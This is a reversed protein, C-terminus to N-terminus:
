ALRCVVMHCTSPHRRAVARKVFWRATMRDPRYSFPPLLRSTEVVLGRSEVYAVFEERNWERIHAPNSPRNADPGCLSRRDPTTFVITGSDAVIRKVYEVLPDPDLLHEIVDSSIVLDAGVVDALVESSPHEFDDALFRGPRRLRECAAVAAPQDIGVLEFRDADFCAALKTAVGCGVDVIRRMGREAALEAALEYARRQYRGSLAVREDDWYEDGSVADMTLNVSNPQYGEPLHFRSAADKGPRGTTSM